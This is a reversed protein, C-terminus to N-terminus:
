GLLIPFMDEFARTDFFGYKTPVFGSRGITIADRDPSIVEVGGQLQVDRELNQHPSKSVKLDHNVPEKRGGCATPFCQFNQPEFGVTFM